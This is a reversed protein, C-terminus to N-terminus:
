TFALFAPVTRGNACPSKTGRIRLYNRSSKPGIRPPRMFLPSALYLLPNQPRNKKVSHTYTRPPYPWSGASSARQSRIKGATQSQDRAGPPFASRWPRHLRLRKPRASLLEPPLALRELAAPLFSKGRTHAIRLRIADFRTVFDREYYGNGYGAASRPSREYSAYGMFMNRMRNRRDARRLSGPVARDSGGHASAGARGQGPLQGTAARERERAQRYHPLKEERRNEKYFTQCGSEKLVPSFRREVKL